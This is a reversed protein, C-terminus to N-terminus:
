FNDVSERLKKYTEYYGWVKKNDDKNILRLSMFCPYGNISMPGAEKHYEYVM